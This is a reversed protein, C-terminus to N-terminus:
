AGEPALATLGPRFPSGSPTFGVYFNLKEEDMLDNERALKAVLNRIEVPSRGGASTIDAMSSIIDDRSLGGRRLGSEGLALIAQNVESFVNRAEAESLDREQILRQLMNEGIGVGAQQAQYAVVAGEAVQQIEPAAEGKLLSFWDGFKVDKGLEARSRQRLVNFFDKNQVAQMFVPANELFVEADIGSKLMKNIQTNYSGDADKKYGLATLAPSVNGNYDTWAREPDATRGYFAEIGPYLTKKWFNTNRQEARIQEPTWDGITAQAMIRQMEPDSALRGALSPDRVGAAAAADVMVERMMRQFNGRLGIVQEAPAEALVKQNFWTESRMSFAPNRQGTAAGLQSIDNFQYSVFQGSGVPFEYIQYWRDGAPTKV